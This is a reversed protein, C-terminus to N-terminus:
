AEVIMAEEENSFQFPIIKLRSEKNPFIFTPKYLRWAAQTNTYGGM